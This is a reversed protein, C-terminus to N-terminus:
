KLGASSPGQPKLDFRVWYDAAPPPPFVAQKDHWFESLKSSLCFGVRSAGMGRRDIIRGDKDVEVLLEYQGPDGDAAQQMCPQLWTRLKEEFAAQYLKGEPTQLHAEALEEAAHHLAMLPGLQKAWQRSSEYAASNGWINSWQDGIRNFLKDAIDAKGFAIAARAMLNWNEPSPGSQKEVADFGKKIRDWSFDLQQDNQCGCVTDTAVRFYLINGDDGGIKDAAEQLFKEVEGAEGGWKPLISYAYSRYYYYYNPEFKVAQEFLTRRAAPEWNGLAVFQMALYWEPDKTPLASAQDLIQKAKAEREALLRWGSESVTDSSGDGRANAGWNVYSEALAIHATISEPKAALWRQLLEMHTNWDEPTAHLPPRALGIYIMHIKWMGGAFREKGSRVSDALCDLQDLEGAKLLGYATNYYDSGAHVDTSTDGSLGAMESTTLGCM